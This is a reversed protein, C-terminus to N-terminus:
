DGKGKTRIEYLQTDNGRNNYVYCIYKVGLRAKVKMTLTKKNLRQINIVDPLSENVEQMSPYSLWKFEAVPLAEAICVLDM